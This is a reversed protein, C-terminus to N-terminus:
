AASTYMGHFSFPIHHPVEARAIERFSSADLVLLFSTGKKGDLVISLLVGEDEQVANPAAVFIAEGPYCGEEFWRQTETTGVDVKILENFFDNPTTKRRAAGYAYRYDCGNSHAYNIRPLDFSEGALVEYSPRAGSLPIRYRRLEGNSFARSNPGILNELYYDYVTTADPYASIDVFVEGAREFANVHHFAFFAESEYRGVISGDQKNVVIFRTGLEPKWEYNEIFPKGSMLMKLPNVVLPFEALVVYHETLGFSHMYAPEETPVASVLQRQREGAKLAYVNYTSHPGLHALYNVGANLQRDFHPHATTVQGSLKDDFDFVGLTELTRADFMVPLPAETLAVFENGLRSINVNANDTTEASFTTALRKFISRCPDTAFESYVIKGEKMNEQYTKSHLFRNAYAVVGDQFSFRHLMALGDFWHRYQEQGVEFQAPGTRLLAGSLWSPLAGQIPLSDCVVEQKLTSFGVQFQSNM